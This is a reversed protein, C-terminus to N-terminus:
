RNDQSGIASYGVLRDYREGLPRYYALIQYSNETEFHSGELRTEDIVTPKMPDVVAYVYNYVGQKLLLDCQYGGIAPNYFLQSGANPQWQNFAGLVHVQERAFPSSTKLRFQVTAYDAEWAGLEEDANGLGLFFNGNFDPNSLYNQNTRMGDDNLLVGVPGNSTRDVMRVGLGRASLNRTDFQRFENGGPFENQTGLDYELRDPYVYTARVAPHATDWRFNQMLTVSLERVPDRVLNWNPLVNFRLRQLLYRGGESASNSFDPQIVLGEEVVLFRQQLVVDTPDGGRYVVVLYNGSKTFSLGRWPISQTYHVYDVRSQQSSRFNTIPATEFGKIYDIPFLRTPQWDAECRVVKCTFSANVTGLEDFSLTLHGSEGLALVPYALQNEGRYLQVSFVTPSAVSNSYGPLQQARIVNVCLLWVFILQLKKM